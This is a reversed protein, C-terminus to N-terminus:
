AFRVDDYDFGLRSANALTGQYDLCQRVQPQPGPASVCASAALDGGPATSPRPPTIIGNWPWMTDVLNHGVRNGNVGNSHYSSAAAPDFRGLTRQWKAWLRDVNAHLLFFLPDRAATPISSISGGFSTHASGHPNGEMGRFNAYDTGLALTQAETRGSANGTGTNFLPRRQIGQVGDTTWFQLPNTASFSVNGLADSAGLFAMTFLGPAPQDFRWYPLSVSPDINQLERELDLLYSRHWPLFGAGSHAEPSAASVHMNRFDAFRGTGQNNLQALAAIFRDREATTMLAANKRIRVMLPLQGIPNIGAQAVIAVDRDAKSARNFKGAVYFTVSTGNRPLKLNLSANPASGLNAYFVLDGGTASAKASVTVAVPLLGPPAGVLNTLRIRVPSPAWTVYCALAAASNNILIEVKM